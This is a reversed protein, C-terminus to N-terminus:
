GLFRCCVLATDDMLPTSGRFVDLDDLIKQPLEETPTDKNKLLFVELRESGYAELNDNEQEVLGDTFFVLLSPREAMLTGTTVSPLEDFMGLGITGESLLHSKGSKEVLIPPNHGCNVYHLMGSRQDYLALFFTIYKEGNASELVRKNLEKVIEALGSFRYKIIARLYAQFNSMLFAASLGKGSVDAICFASLNEDVSFFDYYDGGVERHPKYVGHVSMVSNNPLNKPVLMIQMEAALDLEKKIRAQEVSQEMLRQNRIAVMVLNTVTQIFKMHKIAPSIGGKEGDLDGVLLYAIPLEDHLVPIVIDFHARTLGTLNVTVGKDANFFGESVIESADGDVGHTLICQWVLGESMENTYLLLRGVGLTGSLVSTYLELLTEASVRNNIAQTIDLLTNLKFDKLQIKDKLRDTSQAM